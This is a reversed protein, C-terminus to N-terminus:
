YSVTPAGSFPQEAVDLLWDLRLVECHGDEFRVSLWEAADRTAVDLPMIKATAPVGNVDQYCVWLPMRKLVAFELREHQACAIPQYPATSRL